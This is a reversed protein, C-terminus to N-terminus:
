SNLWSFAVTVKNGSDRYEVSDCLEEVLRIGRGSFQTDPTSRRNCRARYDFGPGSDEVEIVMNGGTVSPQAKIEIKIYGDQLDSLRAERELFYQNFGESSQKLSSQLRLVGHDLANVYLETLITYLLRQQNQLGVMEQIHNIILPIPDTKRLRAGALRLSFEMAEGSGQLSVADKGPQRSQTLPLSEWSSFISPECPIEALSIDDDQPADQCFNKLAISIREILSASDETAQIAADLRPQGFYEKGPSRAELVGDSILLVRDGPHIPYPQITEEYTADALISLPLNNSIFRYKIEDGAANILLADPMGCNFVTVHDLTHSVSVFQVAFFMGTPLLSHLKRNISALIQQPSFGKHTMARFTESVPLAGIAAALGHGTFDGLMINLDSSPSYASLLVDGSFLAAPQLLTHLQDMAVNGAIVAGSFVSEAMEEDKKMQAYLAGLKQHVQSIRELANVKAKLVTHNFPKTLFDDGGVEICRAQISEDTRATLFIIPVFKTIEIQRIRRVTEHGDMRPMMDDMFVMDPQESVFLRLAEAGNEAQIM